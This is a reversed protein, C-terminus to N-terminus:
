PKRTAISGVEDPALGGQATPARGGCGTGSITCNM